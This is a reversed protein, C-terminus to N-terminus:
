IHRLARIHFNCSRIVDTVHRDMTLLADLNVGLLKVSDGFPVPVGAVEVGAATDVKARQVRTGFLVAETKCPNLMMGNELFWRYVDDVCKSIADFTSGADPRRAM